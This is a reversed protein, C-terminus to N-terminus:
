KAFKHRRYSVFALQTAFEPYRIITAAPKPRMIRGLTGLGCMRVGGAACSKGEELFM